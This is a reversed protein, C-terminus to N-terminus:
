CEGVVIHLGYPLTLSNPSAPPLRPFHQRKKKVLWQGSILNDPSLTLIRTFCRMKRPTRRPRLQGHFVRYRNCTFTREGHGFCCLFITEAITRALVNEIASAVNLFYNERKRLLLLIWPNLRVGMYIYIYIYICVCFIYVYIYIYIYIHIYIYIYIYTYTHSFFFTRKEQFRDKHKQQRFAAICIYIYIDINTKTHTYIYIYIYLIYYIYIYIYTNTTHM